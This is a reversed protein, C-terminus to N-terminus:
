AIHHTQTNGDRLDGGDGGDEQRMRKREEKAYFLFLQQPQILEDAFAQRRQGTEDDIM